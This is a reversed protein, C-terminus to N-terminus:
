INSGVVLNYPSAKLVSIAIECSTATGICSTYATYTTGDSQLIEVIYGTIASGGDAPATWTILVNSGSVTTTPAAPTSPVTAMIVAGNGAPSAASDGITNKAIIKASVNSGVLLNYPPAKLVFIAIECSTATGICSTYATYTTGDSQLIEV